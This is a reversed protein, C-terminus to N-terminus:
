FGTKALTVAINATVTSKGVGGKGSAIAVTNHIGPINKGKIQPKEPAEVRINVIVKADPHVKQHITNVIDNEARKKIHMAPTTLVLDVIVEDAFTIVNQVAGSEMMNKGEGSVTITEL